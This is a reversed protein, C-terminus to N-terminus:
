EAPAIKFARTDFVRGSFEAAGEYRIELDGPPLEVRDLPLDFKREPSDLYGAVNERQVLVTEIQNEGDPAYRVLLRGYPSIAGKSKITTALVLLGNDDRDLHTDGISASVKAGNRLLVPASASVGIDIQIGSGAKRIPTRAAGTEFLLHSRREGRPIKVDDRLRVTVEVRAGPELRFQAPSVTLYPAASLKPRASAPAPEYGTETAALDIWSVRGEIIRSSPNSVQFTAEKTQKTIVQRLPSLELDAYARSDTMLLLLFAIIWPKM